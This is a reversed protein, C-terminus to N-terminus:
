EVNIDVVVHYANGQYTHIMFTVQDRGKFGSESKYFGKIGEVERSNCKSRPDATKYTPFVKADELRTNGHSPGSSVQVDDKGAISCDVNINMDKFIFIEKGSLATKEYNMFQTGALAPCVMTGLLAAIGIITKTRCLM